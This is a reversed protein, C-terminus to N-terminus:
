ILGVLVQFSLTWWLGLDFVCSLVVGCAGVRGFGEWIM